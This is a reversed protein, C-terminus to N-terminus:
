NLHDGIFMDVSQLATKLRLAESHEIKRERKLKTLLEFVIRISKEINVKSEM